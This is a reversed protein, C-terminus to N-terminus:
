FELLNYKKLSLLTLIDTLYIVNKYGICMQLM